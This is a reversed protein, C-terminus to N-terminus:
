LVFRYRSGVYYQSGICLPDDKADCFNVRLHLLADGSPIALLSSQESTARVAEVLRRPTHSPRRGSVNEVADFISVNELDEEMLDRYAEFPLLINEEFIPIADATRLRRIHLLLATEPLELFEMADAHIPQIQRSILRAGPEMGNDHCVDTFSRAFEYQLLRRNIRPASVFTGRGQHKILYGESCLEEIARRVTIRSVGYRDSLEPESPIRDKPAYIGNEIAERLEASIQQYLPAPPTANKM